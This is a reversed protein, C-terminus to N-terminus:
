LRNQPEANAAAKSKLAAKLGTIMFLRQESIPNVFSGGIEGRRSWMVRGIVLGLGPLKLRVLSQPPVHAGVSVRFGDLSVDRLIVPIGYYGEPIMLTPIATSIREKRRRDPALAHVALRANIQM